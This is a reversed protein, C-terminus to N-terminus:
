YFQDPLYIWNTDIKPFKLFLTFNVYRINCNWIIQLVQSLWFKKSRKYFIFLMRRYRSFFIVSPIELIKQFKWNRLNKFQLFIPRYQQPLQSTKNSDADSSESSKKTLWTKVQLILSFHPPTSSGCVFESVLFFFIM